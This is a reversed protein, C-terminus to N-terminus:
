QVGGGQQQQAERKDRWAVYAGALAPDREACAPHHAVRGRAHTYSTVYTDGVAIRKACRACQRPIDSVHQAIARPTNPRTM